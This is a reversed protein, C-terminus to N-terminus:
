PIKVKTHEVPILISIQTGSGGQSEINCTANLSLCRNKINELGNSHMNATVLDFGIGNDVIKIALTRPSSEFIVLVEVSSAQSHKIVNQLVEKVIRIAIARKKIELELEEGKVDYTMSFLGSKQLNLCETRIQETLSVNHASEDKITRALHGLEIIARSILKKADETKTLVIAENKFDITKLYLNALTLKQGINDHIEQSIDNITQTQIQEEKQREEDRQLKRKAWYRYIIGVSIIFVELIIGIHFTTPPFLFSLTSPFFLRQVSGVMFGLSGFFIFLASKFKRVCYMCNIIVMCIGLLISIKAWNFVFTQIHSNYVFMFVFFHVIASFLVNAKLIISLRYLLKHGLMDKLFIQVVHMLVAIAFAGVAVYPTLRFGMESDLGLFQQDLQDNKMVIFFLLAIYLAYWLHLKDKIAFFLSVNLVFFLILLGVIIGFVFYINNEYIKLAKPQLLAFGMYKYVNSANISLYLTDVSKQPLAFPFVHHAFQYSRDRFRYKLGTHAVENWRGNVQQFLQGDYMGVPALLLMLNRDKEASNKVIIRIWYYYPDYDFVLVPKNDARIFNLKSRVVSDVSIPVTTRLYSTYKTILFQFNSDCESADIVQAFPSLFAFVLLLSLLPRLLIKM